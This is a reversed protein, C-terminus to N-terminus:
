LATASHAIYLAFDFIAATGSIRLSKKKPFLVAGFLRSADILRFSSGFNRAYEKAMFGLQHNETEFRKFPPTRQIKLPVSFIIFIVAGLNNNLLVAARRIEEAVHASM